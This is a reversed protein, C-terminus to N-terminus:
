EHKESGALVLESQIKEHKVSRLSDSVEKVPEKRPTPLNEQLGPALEANILNLYPFASRM